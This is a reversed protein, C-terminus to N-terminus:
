TASGSQNSIKSSTIISSLTVAFSVDGLHSRSAMPPRTLPKMFEM